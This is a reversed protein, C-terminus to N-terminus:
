SAFNSDLFVKPASFGETVQFLYFILASFRETDQLLNFSLASFGETILLLMSLFGSVFVPVGVRFPSVARPFRALIPGGGLLSRLPM